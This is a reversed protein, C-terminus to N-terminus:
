ARECRAGADAVAPTRLGMLALEKLEPEVAMSEGRLEDVSDPELLALVLEMLLMGLTSDDLLRKLLEM